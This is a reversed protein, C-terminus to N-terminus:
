AQRQPKSQSWNSSITFRSKRFQLEDTACAVCSRMLESLRQSSSVHRHRLPRFARKSPTAEPWRLAVSLRCFTVAGKRLSRAVTRGHPRSTMFQVGVRFVIRLRSISNSSVGRGRRGAVAAALGRHDDRTSDEHRLASPRMTPPHTSRERWTSAACRNLFNIRLQTAHAVSSNCNRLDRKVIELM